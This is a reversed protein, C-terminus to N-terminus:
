YYPVLEPFFSQHIQGKSHTKCEGKEVSNRHFKSAELSHSENATDRRLSVFICKLSWLAVYLLVGVCALCGLVDKSSPPIYM